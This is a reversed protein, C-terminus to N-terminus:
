ARADCLTHEDKVISREMTSVHTSTNRTAGVLESAASVALECGLTDLRASSSTRMLALTVDTSSSLVARYRTEVAKPSHGAAHAPKREGRIPDLPCSAPVVDFM